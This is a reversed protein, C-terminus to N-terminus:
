KDETANVTGSMTFVTRCIPVGRSVYDTEFDSMVNWDPNGDHHLDYTTESATWGNEAATKLSVDFFPVNDTKFEVRGEPKLFSRYLNLYHPSTFRKNWDGKRPWPDSFNLYIRSVEGEAFVRPLFEATMRLFRLNTCGTKEAKLIARYMPSAYVEVAVYNVDPHLAACKTVFSGKGSGIELHLPNGNGFLEDWRGKWPYPDMVCLESNDIHEYAGKKCRLHM